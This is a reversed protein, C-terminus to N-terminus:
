DVVKHVNCQSLLMIVGFFLYYLNLIAEHVTPTDVATFRLFAILVLGLAGGIFMFKTVYLLTQKRKEKRYHKMSGIPLRGGFENKYYHDVPVGM